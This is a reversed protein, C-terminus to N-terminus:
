CVRCSRGSLRRPPAHLKIWSVRKLLKQTVKAHSNGYSFDEKKGSFEIDFSKQFILFDFIGCLETNFSRSIPQRWTRPWPAWMTRALPNSQSGLFLSDKLLYEESHTCTIGSHGNIEVHWKYMSTCWNKSAIIEIDPSRFALLIAYAGLQSDVSQSGLQSGLTDWWDLQGAENTGNCPTDRWQINKVHRMKCTPWNIPLLYTPSLQCHWIHRSLCLSPWDSCFAHSMM